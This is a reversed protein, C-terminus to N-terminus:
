VVFHAAEAWSKGLLLKM